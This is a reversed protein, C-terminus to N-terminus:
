GQAEASTFVVLVGACIILVGVIRQPSVSEGLFIWSGAVGLVYSTSLLPYALSLPIRSIVSLWFLSGTFILAFGTVIVPTTFIRVLAPFFVAPQLGLVGIKNMGTKLFLEGVVTFGIAVLLILFPRLM